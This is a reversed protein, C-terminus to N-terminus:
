IDGHTIRVGDALGMIPDTVIVDGEELGERVAVYRDDYDQCRINKRFVRDSESLAYVYGEHEGERVFARAPILLLRETGRVPVRVRVFMGPVLGRRAPLLCDVSFSRSKVDVYPDIAYVVGELEENRSDVFVRVAEGVSLEPFVSESFSARAIISEQDLVTTIAEDVGVKEGPYKTVETVVGNIPSIVRRHELLWNVEELEVQLRKLRVEAFEIRKRSLKTNVHVLLRRREAEVAPVAYGEAALDADGLGFVELEHEKRLVALERAKTDLAFELNRFEEETIGGKEFLIRKRELHSRLFAIEKEGSSMLLETKEIQTFRRHISKEEEFHQIKATELEERAALVEKETKAKELELQHNALELIPDGKRVRDGKKVCVREVIGDIKSLVTAKDFIVFTGLGEIDRRTESLSVRMVDFELVTEPDGDRDTSREVARSTFPKGAARPGGAPTGGGKFCGVSSFALCTSIVATFCM